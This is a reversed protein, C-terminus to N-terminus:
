RSTIEARYGGIESQKRRQQAKKEEEKEMAETILCHPSTRAASDYIRNERRSAKKRRNKRALFGSM